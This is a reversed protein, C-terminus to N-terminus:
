DQNPGRTALKQKPRGKSEDEQLKLGVHAAEGELARRREQSHPDTRTTLKNLSHLFARFKQATQNQWM